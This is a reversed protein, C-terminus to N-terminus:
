KRVTAKIRTTLRTVLEEETSWQIQSAQAIDFHPREFQSESFVKKDCCIIVEKGLALAYGAEYYAGYNPYTIDMVLFKSKEIERLMEPVIQHNHEFEDMIRPEFGAARIAKKFSERIGKTEESFSMAIFGQKVEAHKKRLEEIHKWGEASIIWGKGPHRVYGLDELVFLKGRIGNADSFFLRYDHYDLKLPSGYDPQLLALNLLTREAKEMFNSPYSPLLSALDIAASNIAGLDHNTSYYFFWNSGNPSKKQRILKEAILDMAKNYEPRKIFDEYFSSSLITKAKYTTCDIVYNFDDDKKFTCTDSGCLPCTQKDAM